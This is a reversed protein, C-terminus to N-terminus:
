FAFQCYDSPKDLKYEAVWYDTKPNNRKLERAEFNARNKDLSFGFQLTEFGCRTEVVYITM